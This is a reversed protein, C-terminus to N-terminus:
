GCGSDAFLRSFAAPRSPTSTSQWNKLQITPDHGFVGAGRHLKWWTLTIRLPKSFGPGDAVVKTAQPLAIFHRWVPLDRVLVLGLRDRCDKLHCADTYSSV